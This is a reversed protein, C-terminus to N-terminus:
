LRSPRTEHTATQLGRHAGREVDRRIFGCGRAFLAGLHQHFHRHSQLLLGFRGFLQQGRHRQVVLRQLHKGFALRKEGGADLGALRCRQLGNGSDPGFGTDLIEFLRASKVFLHHRNQGLRARGLFAGFRFHIEAQDQLAQRALAPRPEGIGDAGILPRQLRRRCAVMRDFEGNQLVIEGGGEKGHRHGILARLIRSAM